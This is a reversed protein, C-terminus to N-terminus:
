KNRVYVTIVDSLRLISLSLTIPLSLFRLLFEQSSNLRTECGFGRLVYRISGVLGWTSRDQEIHDILFGSRDTITRISKPSFISLHRPADLHFWKTGFLKANFSRSNPVGFVLWGDKKLFQRCRSLTALPHHNHELYWWMTIIDFCRRPYPADILQGHFVELGYLEKAATTANISFDVGYCRCGTKRKLEALFDGRGCGVDM